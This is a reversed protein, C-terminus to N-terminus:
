SATPSPTDHRPRAEATIEGAVHAAWADIADWDRRDGAPAGVMRVVLRETRSLTTPDLRGDFVEHEVQRDAVLKEVAPAAPVTDDSATADLPGVSFLWLGESRVAAVHRLASMAPKLWRGIYIPSGLVVVEAADLADHDEVAPRTVHWTTPLLQALRAAIRDAVETTSGHRSGAAVAVTRVDVVTGM